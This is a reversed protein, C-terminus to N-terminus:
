EVFQSLSGNIGLSPLLHELAAANHIRVYTFDIAFSVVACNSLQTAAHLFRFVCEDGFINDGNNPTTSLKAVSSLQHQTENSKTPKKKKKLPENSEQQQNEQQDSEQQQAQHQNQQSQEEIQEQM